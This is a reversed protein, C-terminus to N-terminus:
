DMLAICAKKMKGVKERLEKNEDRLAANETELSQVKKELFKDNIIAEHLDSTTAPAAKKSGAAKKTASARKTAAKPLGAENRWKYLTQQSIHMEESAKPIGIETMRQLAAEKKDVPHKM